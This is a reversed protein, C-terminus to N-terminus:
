EKTVDIFIRESPLVLNLKERAIKAIYEDTVGFDLQKQLLQNQQVQVDLKERLANLEKQKRSINVHVNVLQVVVCTAFFILFIRFIWRKSKQRNNRVKFM